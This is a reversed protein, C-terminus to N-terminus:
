RLGYRTMKERLTKRAIGLIRAAASKNQGTGALVALIHAKELADLSQSALPPSAAAVRAAAPSAAARDAPSAAARGAPPSATAIRDEPVSSAAARANPLTALAAAGNGLIIMREVINILERINGPFPWGQLWASIAPHLHRHERGYKAAFFRAYHEALLPIDEPHERLPPIDIQVVNIRYYLDGRFTGGAIASALEKNTASILRIRSQLSQQGGVRQFQGDQLFRLLKAQILLDLDGIEDLFLTSRDAFEFKGRKLAVAGTFAGREHGFLESEALTEPLAACNVIVMDRGARRSLQHIARAVLEKGTGSEGRILVSAETPAVQAIRERLAAMQASDGLLQEAGNHRQWASWAGPLVEPLSGARGSIQSPVGRGLVAVLVRLSDVEEPTYDTGSEKKGLTVVCLLTPNLYFPIRLECNQRRAPLPEHLVYFAEDAGEARTLFQAGRELSAALDRSRELRPAGCACAGPGRHEDILLELGPLGFAVFSLASCSLLKAAGSLTAAATGALDGAACISEVADALNALLAAQTSNPSEM